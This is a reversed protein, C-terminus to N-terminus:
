AGQTAGVLQGAHYDTEDKTLDFYADELSAGLQALEILAVDRAPAAAGIAASDM